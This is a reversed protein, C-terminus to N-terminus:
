KQRGNGSSCVWSSERRNKRGELWIREEHRCASTRSGEGRSPNRSGGVGTRHSRREGQNM